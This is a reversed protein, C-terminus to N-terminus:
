VAGLARRVAAMYVARSLKENLKYHATVAAWRAAEEQEEATSVAWDAAADLPLTALFPYTQAAIIAQNTM